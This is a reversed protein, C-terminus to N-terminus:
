KTYPLHPIIRVIYNSILNADENTIRGDLNVDAAELDNKTLKINNSLHNQVITVDTTTIEGDHNLDGYKIPLVSVKNVAYKQILKVDNEDIQGDLNVDAFKLNDNSLKINGVLYLQITTADNVNIDNDRNIDGSKMLFGKIVEKEDKTFLRTNDEITIIDKNTLTDVEILETGKNKNDIAQVYTSCKNELCFVAVFSKDQDFDGYPSKKNDGKEMKIDSFSHISLGEKQNMEKPYNLKIYEGFYILTDTYSSKKSKDIYKTVQPVVIATLIGIIVIVTLLEILTFAKKNKM